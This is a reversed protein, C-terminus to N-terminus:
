FKADRLYRIVENKNMRSEETIKEWTNDFFECTQIHDQSLVARANCSCRKDRRGNREDALLNVEPAGHENM